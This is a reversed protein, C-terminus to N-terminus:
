SSGVQAGTLGSTLCGAPLDLRKRIIEMQASIDSASVRATTAEDAAAEAAAARNSDSNASAAEISATAEAVNATAELRSASAKVSSVSSAIGDMVTGYENFAALRAATPNVAHQGIQANVADSIALLAANLRAAKLREFADTAQKLAILEDRLQEARQQTARLPAAAQDAQGTLAGLSRRQGSILAAVQRISSSINVGALRTDQSAADQGGSRTEAGSIDDSAISLATMVCTIALQGDSYIARRQQSPIFIRSGGVTAGALGIGLLLDKSGDYVGVALGAIGLGFLGAGTWFEFREHDAIKSSLEGRLQAASEQAASFKAGEGFQVVSPDFEVRPEILACATLNVFM